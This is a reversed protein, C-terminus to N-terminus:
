LGAPKNGEIERTNIEEAKSQVVEKETGWIGFEPVKSMHVSYFHYWSPDQNHHVSTRNDRGTTIRFLPVSNWDRPHGADVYSLLLRAEENEVAPFIYYNGKTDTFVSIEGHELTFSREPLSIQFCLSFGNRVLWELKDKTKQKMKVRKDVDQLLQGPNPPYSTQRSNGREKMKRLILRKRFIIPDEGIPTDPFYGPAGFPSHCLREDIAELEQREQEDKYKTEM